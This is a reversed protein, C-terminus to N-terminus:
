TPEVLEGAPASTGGGPTTRWCRHAASRTRSCSQSTASPRRMARAPPRSVDFEDLGAARWTEPDAEVIFTSKEEDVPYGHVAFAGHESQKYVFTLGEFMYTTGFWVFKATATDTSPGFDKAFSDRLLSNSGDAVVVLDYDALEAPSSVTTEFRLDM